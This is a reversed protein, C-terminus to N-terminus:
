LICHPRQMTSDISRGICLHALMHLGACFMPRPLKRTSRISWPYPVRQRKSNDSLECPACVRAAISTIREDDAGAMRDVEDLAELCAAFQRLRYRARALLLFRFSAFPLNECAEICEHYHASIM